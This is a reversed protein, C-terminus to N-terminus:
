PALLAVLVGVLVGVMLGVGGAAGVDVLRFAGELESRQVEIVEDRVRVSESWARDRARLAELDVRLREVLGQGEKLLRAREKSTERLGQVLQFAETCDLVYREPVLRGDAWALDGAQISYDGRPGRDIEQAGLPGCIGTLGVSWWILIPLTRRWRKPRMRSCM